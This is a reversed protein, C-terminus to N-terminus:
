IKGFNEVLKNILIKQDSDSKLEKKLLREAINISIKASYDKLEILALEKERAISLKADSIIKNSVKQAEEKAEEHMLKTASAADKLMKDREINAEKLLVENDLKLKGLEEKAKEAAKLSNEISKERDKVSSLITNWAYKRLVWLTFLLTVVQWFILGFDPTILNM